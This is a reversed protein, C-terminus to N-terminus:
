FRAGACLPTENLYHGGLETDDTDTYIFNLLLGANIADPYSITDTNLIADNIQEAAGLVGTFSRRAIGDNSAGALISTNLVSGDHTIVQSTDVKRFRYRDQIFLKDYFQVADKGEGFLVAENLMGFEENLQHGLEAYRSVQNGHVHYGRVQGTEAGDVAVAFDPYLYSSEGLVLSTNISETISATDSYATTIAFQTISETPSLTDSFVASQNFAISETVTVPDPDADADTRDFDEVLTYNRSVVETMTVTDSKALNVTFSDIADTPTSLTDSLGSTVNFSNISDSPAVSDSKGLTPNNKIGEVVTLSDGIGPVTVDFATSEVPSATDSFGGHTFNKATAETITPTDSLGKNFDFENIADSATVPDPDVDADSLDFDINSTFTKVNSQVASVSDTNPQTFNKATSETITVTDDLVTTVDFRDIAESTTATDTINKQPRFQNITESTSVSATIGPKNPAKATSESPTVDDAGSFNKSLDFAAAESITVPTADVDDDTPDFDIFDTFVKVRSEIMNVSDTKVIEVDFKDIAESPLAEDNTVADIDKQLNTEVGIGDGIDTVEVQQEPLVTTPVIFYSANITQGSVSVGISADPYAATASISSVAASVSIVSTIVISSISISTNAM